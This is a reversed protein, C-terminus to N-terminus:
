QVDNSVRNWVFQTEQETNMQTSMRFHSCRIINLYQKIVHSIYEDTRQLSPLIKYQLTKKLEDDPLM